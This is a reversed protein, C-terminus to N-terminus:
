TAPAARAPGCRSSRRTCTGASVSEVTYSTKLGPIGGLNADVIKINQAHLDQRFEEAITQRMSSLGASGSETM